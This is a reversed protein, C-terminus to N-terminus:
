TNAERRPRSLAHSLFTVKRWLVKNRWPAKGLARGRGARVDQTWM